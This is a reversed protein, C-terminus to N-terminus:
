TSTSFTLTSAHVRVLVEQDGPTPRETEMVQLVEPTGYRYAAIAKM